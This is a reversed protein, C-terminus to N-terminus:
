CVCVRSAKTIGLGENQRHADRIFRQVLLYYYTIFYSDPDFSVLLMRMWAVMNTTYILKM